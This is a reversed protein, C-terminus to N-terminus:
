PKAFLEERARACIAAVGPHQIERQLSIAFFRRRIEPSRGVVHVRYRQRVEAELVDPSAFIGVGQEGLVSALAIDDLEAVVAPRVSHNRLWLDLAGRFTSDLSPLVLPADELSAPFGARYRRALAPAAFWTTGCEGLEHDFMRVSSGRSAPTDSLVVDLSRAALEAVFAATSRSERCIVQLDLEPAFAPALIRHVLSKALVDSVGVVLRRRRRSRGEMVDLLGQGLTFIQDAYQAVLQGVETLELNRGRRVFLKDGLQAELRHIQTSITPPALRLLASAKSVGGHRAVVWFYHLHHYNLADIVSRLRSETKDFDGRTM